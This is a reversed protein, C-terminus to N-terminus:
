CIRRASLVFRGPATSCAALTVGEQAHAPVQVLEWPSPYNKQIIPATRQWHDCGHTRLLMHSRLRKFIPWRGRNDQYVEEGRYDDVHQKPPVEDPTVTFDAIEDDHTQDVDNRGQVSRYGRYNTTPKDHSPTPFPGLLFPRQHDPKRSRRNQKEGRGQENRRDSSEGVM